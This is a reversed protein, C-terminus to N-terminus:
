LIIYYLILSTFDFDPTGPSFPDTNRDRKPIPGCIDGAPISRRRRNGLTRGSKSKNKPVHLRVGETIRPAFPSDYFKLNYGFVAMGSDLTFEIRRIPPFRGGGGHPDSNTNM